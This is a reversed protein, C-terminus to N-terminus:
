CNKCIERKIPNPLAWLEWVKAYEIVSFSLDKGGKFKKMSERFKIKTKGKMTPDVMLVGKYGRYRIQFVSPMYKQNRYRINVKRVLLKAFKESILGCGDTFIYDKSEVDPIYECCEPQVTCAIEAASFLLAIRKAKKAVSKCKTFDGLDEVKHAIDEKSAAYSFCARSKLQSNSHGYFNYTVGNITLGSQLFRTMYDASEKATAPTSSLPEDGKTSSDGNPHRLRFDAFSILIFKDLPDNVTARNAPAKIFRLIINQKESNSFVSVSKILGQSNLTSNEPLDQPSYSWECDHPSIPKQLTIVLNNVNSTAM